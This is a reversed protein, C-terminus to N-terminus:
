HLTPKAIHKEYDERSYAFTVLGASRRAMGVAHAAKKTDPTAVIREGDTVVWKSAKTM